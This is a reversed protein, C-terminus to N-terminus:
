GDTSVHELLLRATEEPRESTAMHAAGDLVVLRADRVGAAIVEAHAPPTAPDEAGAVVLTPAVISPLDARLDMAAIAECCGAYGEPPIGLLMARHAAVVDPNAAAFGATFWRALVADVVAPMGGARVAAARELWMEPPGLLASTCFLVLRDVREPARAAVWMGVMGGLSLGAVTAREIGLDDLLAVLERGLEDITYPGPPVLSGGHGLHDYRVVRHGAALRDLQPAWVAGTSGVSGGLVLVPAGPPGDLAAYLRSAAPVRDSPSSSPRM